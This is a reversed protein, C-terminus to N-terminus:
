SADALFSDLTSQYQSAEFELPGIATPELMLRNEAHDIWYEQLEWRILDGVRTITAAIGGCDVDLCERCGYILRRGELRPFGPEKLLLQQAFPRSDWDKSLVGVNETHLLERLSSGDVIFDFFSVASRFSGGSLQEKPLNV